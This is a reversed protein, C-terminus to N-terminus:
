YFHYAGDLVRVLNYLLEVVLATEVVRNWPMDSDLRGYAAGDANKGRNQSTSWWAAAAHQMQSM